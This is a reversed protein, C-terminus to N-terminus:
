QDGPFQTHTTSWLFPENISSTWLLTGHHVLQNFSLALPQLKHPRHIVGLKHQRAIFMWSQSCIAHPQSEPHSECASSWCAAPLPTVRPGWNVLRPVGGSVIRPVTGLLCFKSTRNKFLKTWTTSCSCLITLNNAYSRDFLMKWLAGPGLVTGLPWKPILVSEPPCFLDFIHDHPVWHWPTPSPVTFKSM